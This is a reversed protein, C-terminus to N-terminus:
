PRVMAGSSVYVRELADPADEVREAAAIGAREELHDGLVRDPAHGADGLDRLLVLPRSRIKSSKRSVRRRVSPEYRLSSRQATASM